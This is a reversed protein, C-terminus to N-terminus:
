DVAKPLCEAEGARILNPIADFRDFVQQDRVDSPARVILDEQGVRTGLEESPQLLKM